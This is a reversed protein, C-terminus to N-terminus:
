PQLIQLKQYISGESLELRVVYSGPSVTIPLSTTRSNIRQQYTIRGTLDIISVQEIIDDAEITLSTYAPNPYLVVSSVLIEETSTANSIEFDPDDFRACDGSSAPMNEDLWQLREDIWERYFRILTSHDEAWTYFGANPWVYRGLIDWREFNRQQSEFLLRSWQEIQGEMTSKSLLDSRLSHYRCGLAAMFTEDSLLNDWWGPSNGVCDYYLWNSTSLVDCFDANGFALNFDWM